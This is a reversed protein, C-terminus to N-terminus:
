KTFYSDMKKLYEEKTMIPTFNSLVKEATVGDNALLDIITMAMAKAPLICAADYDAVAFDRSHLNGTSGGIFPHITPLLHSVDGFDTSAGFHGADNTELTPCVEKANAVFIENLDSSCHLPFYGPMTRIITEAGVADGGAKLARDVKGHTADIAEMTKARVYTDMRVDAPVSNVLDGGKTIIPHVRITDSDKFTERMAHIGMLGLMAANLANIGMDPSEAAHAERGIYQISKGVFGNSSTGIAVSHIPKNKESHMMMAIDINDFEGRAIMEQKGSLYRLKGDAILRSRFDMEVYEEAPVAFFTVTGNLEEMVKAVTLGIATGMMMGLQLHHGCCHAANNLPNVMPSDPCIVADMEGLVAINRGNGKGQIAKVGTIAINETIDLGFDRFLKATKSATKFEKFGMEAESAVDEVYAIIKDKNGDIAQCVKAKLLAIDM